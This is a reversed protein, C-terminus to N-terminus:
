REWNGDDSNKSRAFGGTPLSFAVDEESLLGGFSHNSGDSPHKLTNHKLRFRRKSSQARLSNGCFPVPHAPSLPPVDTGLVLDLNV